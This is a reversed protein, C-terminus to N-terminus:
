SFNLPPGRLFSPSKDFSDFLFQQSLGQYETFFVPLNEPIAIDATFTHYHANSIIDWFIYEEETHDHDKDGKQFPHAHVILHGNETLHVHKNNFNNWFVLGWLGLMALWLSKM